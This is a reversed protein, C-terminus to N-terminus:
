ELGETSGANGFFTVWINSYHLIVTIVATWKLFCEKHQEKKVFKAVIILLAISIIASIVMYLIHTLDFLM